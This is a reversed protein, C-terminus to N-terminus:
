VAGRLPSSSEKLKSMIPMASDCDFKELAKIIDDILIDIEGGYTFEAIKKMFTNAENADFGDAAAAAKELNELLFPKEGAQKGQTGGPAAKADFDAITDAIKGHFATLLERFDPYNAKCYAEDGSKATMELKYAIDGLDFSGINRLSGKMGHIDIAYAKMDSAALEGNMKEITEPTLRAFMRVTKEYVETLGGMTELAAATNLGEIKDLASILAPTTEAPSAEQRPTDSSKGDAAAQQVKEKAAAEVAAREQPHADRVFKNLAANLSRV